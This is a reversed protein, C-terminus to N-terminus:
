RSLARLEPAGAEGRTVRVVVRRTTRPDPPVRDLVLELEHERRALPEGDPARLTGGVVRVPPSIALTLRGGNRLESDGTAHMELTGPHGEVQISASGAPLEDFSFRGPANTTTRALEGGEAARLAVSVRPAPLWATKGAAVASLDTLGALIPEMWVVRGDLAPGPPLRIELALPTHADAPVADLIWRERGGHRVVIESQPVGWLVGELAFRGDADTCTEHGAAPM